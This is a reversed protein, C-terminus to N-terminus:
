WFSARPKTEPRSNVPRASPPDPERSSRGPSVRRLLGGLQLRSIATTPCRGGSRKVTAQGDCKIQAVVTKQEFAVTKWRKTFAYRRRISRASCFTMRELAYARSPSALISSKVSRASFSSRSHGSRISSASSPAGIPFLIAPFRKGISFPQERHAVSFATRSASRSIFFGRARRGRHRSESVVTGLQRFKASDHRRKLVDVM